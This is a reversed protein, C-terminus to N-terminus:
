WARWVWRARRKWRQWPHMRRVQRAADSSLSSEPIVKPAVCGSSINLAMIRDHTHSIPAEADHTPNLYRVRTCSATQGTPYIYRQVCTVGSGPHVAEDGSPHTPLVAKLEKLLTQGLAALRLILSM